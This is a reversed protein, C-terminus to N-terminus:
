RACPEDQQSYSLRTCATSLRPQGWAMHLCAVSACEHMTPLLLFDCGYCCQLLMAACCCGREKSKLGMSNTAAEGADHPEAREASLATPVRLWCFHIFGHYAPTRAVRVCRTALLLPSDCGAVAAANCFLLTASCCYDSREFRSM